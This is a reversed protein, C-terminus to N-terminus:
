INDYPQQNNKKEGGLVFLQGNLLIANPFSVHVKWLLVLFSLPKRSFMKTSDTFVVLVTEDPLTLLTLSCIFERGM